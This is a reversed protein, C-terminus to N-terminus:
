ILESKQLLRQFISAVEARTIYNKPEIMKGNRGSVIETKICKAIAAKAYASATEGDYYGTLLNGIEVESLDAELKTLEMARAVIALAQERTIKDMPGFNGGGYGSILRYEYAISVADYYWDDKTVDLFSDKGTGPRMLGLARVVIIAVFESRTIDKDPMDTSSLFM